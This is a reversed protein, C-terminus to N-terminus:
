RVYCTVLRPFSEANRLIWGTRLLVSRRDRAVTIDVDYRWGYPTSEGHTIEADEIGALIREALWEADEAGIGLSAKFVRAKHRGEPHFTNLCYARLKEVDIRAQQSNPLKM